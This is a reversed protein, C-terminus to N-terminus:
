YYTRTAQRRKNISTFIMVVTVVASVLRFLGVLIILIFTARGLRVFSREKSSYIYDEIGSEFLQYEYPNVGLYTGAVAVGLLDSVVPFIMQPSNAKMLNMASFDDIMSLLGLSIGIGHKAYPAIAVYAIAVITLTFGALAFFLHMQKFGSRRFWSGSDANTNNSRLPLASQQNGLRSAPAHQPRRSNNYNPQVGPGTPDPNVNNFM